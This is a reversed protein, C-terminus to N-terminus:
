LMCPLGLSKDTGGAVIPFIQKVKIGYDLPNLSKPRFALNRGFIAQGGHMVQIRFAFLLLLLAKVRVM